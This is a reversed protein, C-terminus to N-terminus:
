KNILDHFIESYTSGSKAALRRFKEIDSKNARITINETENNEKVAGFIKKYEEATLKEEAWTAAQNYSLPKILEGSSGSQGHWIGYQSSAGGFCYLFYEGTNKRFLKEEVYAFNDGIHGNTWVAMQKATDTDYRKQNIIKKM